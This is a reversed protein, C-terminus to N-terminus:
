PNAASEIIIPLCVQTRFSERPSLSTEKASGPFRTLHEKASFFTYTHQVFNFFATYGAPLQM